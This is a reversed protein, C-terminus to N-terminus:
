IIQLYIGRYSMQILIKVFVLPYNSGDSMCSMNKLVFLHPALMFTENLLIWKELQLYTDLLLLGTEWNFTAQKGM